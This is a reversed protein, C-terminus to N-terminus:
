FLEGAWLKKLFLEVPLVTIDEGLLQPASTQCVIIKKLKPFEESLARLGHLHTKTPSVTSKVEIATLDELNLGDWIVFDVELQSTSRWFQIMKKSRTYSLYAKIENHIFNELLAGWEHSHEAVSSRGVLRNAIGMDFAYFKASMMAKRLKTQHFPEVLHGVLTDSLIQFYEKVVIPPLQADSGLSTFNLQEGLRLASFNLFRSFGGISRSLGEDEIEEKLYTTIYDELDDLPAISNLISPLSGLTLFDKWTKKNEPDSILEQSTIPHLHVLGARGGLRNAGVRKLKRPSSGTLIFRVEKYTEILDHVSDLLEPIKQIEDIIILPPSPRTSLYHRVRAELKEPQSVLERYDGGKLLNIVLAEPYETKLFTTKGTQRPGFLFLSKRQLIHDIGLRLARNRQFMTNIKCSKM